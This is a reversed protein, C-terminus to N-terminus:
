TRFPGGPAFLTRANVVALVAGAAPAVVWSAIDPRDQVLLGGAAVGAGSLALGISWRGVARGSRVGLSTVVFAAGCLGLCVLGWTVGDIIAYADAHRCRM